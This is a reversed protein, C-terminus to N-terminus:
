NAPTCLCGVVLNKIVSRQDQYRQTIESFASTFSVQFRLLKSLKYKMTLPILKSLYWTNQSFVNFTTKTTDNMHFFKAAYAFDSKPFNNHIIKLHGSDILTRLQILIRNRSQLAALLARADANHFFYKDISKFTEDIDGMFFKEIPEFFDGADYDDTLSSVDGTSIINKRGFIYSSLKNVEQEWLRSNNGCKSQLLQAADPDITIGRDRALQEITDVNSYSDVNISEVDTSQILDKFIKTRRDVHTTSIVVKKDCASKISEFLSLILNKEDTASSLEGLFYVSRLWVTQSDPFLSITGLFSIVNGIDDSLDNAEDFTFIEGRGDCLANFIIRARRDVLFDDSGYVFTM